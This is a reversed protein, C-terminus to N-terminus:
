DSLCQPKDPQRRGAPINQEPPCGTGSTDIDEVLYPEPAYAPALSSGSARTFGLGGVLIMLILISKMTTTVIRKKNM